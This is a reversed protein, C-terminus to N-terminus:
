LTIDPDDIISKLKKDVDDLSLKEHVEPKAVEKEEKEVKVEETEEEVKAKAVHKKPAKEEEKEEEKEEVKKTHRVPKEKEMKAVPRRSRSNRREDEEKAKAKEAEEKESAMKQAEEQYEAYTKFTYNKPTKVILFRILPQHLILVKELAKVEEPEMQFNLVVYYGQDEGKIKYALERVGWLDENLIEGGGESIADKIEKISEKTKPEGLNPRLVMMMEYSVFLENSM